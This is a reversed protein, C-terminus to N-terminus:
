HQIIILLLVNSVTYFSIILESKLINERHEYLEDCKIESGRKRENVKNEVKKM